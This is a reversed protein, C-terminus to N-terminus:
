AAEMMEAKRCEQEIKALLATAAVPDLGKLVHRLRDRIEREKRRALDEALDANEEALERQFEARNHRGQATIRRQTSEDVAEPEVESRFQPGNIPAADRPKRTGIAGQSSTSYGAAKGLLRVPDGDIKVTAKWGEPLESVAQVIINAIGEKDASTQVTYKNGVVPENADKPWLIEVPKGSANFIKKRTLKDLIM